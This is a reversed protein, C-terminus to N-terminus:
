IRTGLPDFLFERQQLLEPLDIKVWINNNNYNWIFIEPTIIFRANIEVKMRLQIM